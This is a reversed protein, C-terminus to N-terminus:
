TGLVDLTHRPLSVTAGTELFSVSSYVWPHLLFMSSNQAKFPLKTPSLTPTNSFGHCCRWGTLPHAAAPLEPFVPLAGFTRRTM